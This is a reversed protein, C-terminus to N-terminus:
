VEQQKVCMVGVLKTRGCSVKAENSQRPSVRNEFVIMNQPICCMLSFMTIELNVTQKYYNRTSLSADYNM